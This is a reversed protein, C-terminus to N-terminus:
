ASAGYPDMLAALVRRRGEFSRRGHCYQMNDLVLVDGRQWRFVRENVSFARRIRGLEAASIELGNGFRAHRPVQDKGFMCALSNASVEGVSARHFLHAQNFFLTTGTLPHTAVGQATHWTRLLGSNLWTHNINNEACYQDVDAPKETGFVNQWPLDVGAHYHRIYEVDLEAFKGMLESGISSSVSSTSAIPTEGGRDPVETCCFAILMPWSRQYSNENHMPINRYQPYSTSTYIKKTISERPSSRYRYEFHCTSLECAFNHFDDANEVWFGRLLVGGHALVSQKLEVVAPAVSDLLSPRGASPTWTVPGDRDDFLPFSKWM